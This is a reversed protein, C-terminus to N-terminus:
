GFGDIKWFEYDKENTEIDVRRVLHDGLVYEGDFLPEAGDFLDVRYSCLYFFYYMPSQM